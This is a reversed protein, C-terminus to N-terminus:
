RRRARAVALGSAAGLWLAAVLLAVLASPADGASRETSTDPLPSPSAGLCGAIDATQVRTPNDPGFPEFPNPGIAVLSQPGGVPPLDSDDVSTVLHFTVGSVTFTTDTAADFNGCIFLEGAAFAEQARASWCALDISAAAPEAFNVGILLQSVVVTDVFVLGGIVELEGCVEAASLNIVAADLIENDVVTVLLCVDKMADLHFALVAQYPAPLLIADMEFGEVSVIDFEPYPQSAPDRYPIPTGDVSGCAISALLDPGTFGYDLLIAALTGDGALQFELCAEEAALPGDLTAIAGLLAALDPDAAILAAADGDLTATTLTDTSGAQLVFTGADDVLPGCSTDNAINVDVILGMGDGILHLCTWEGAAALPAVLPSVPAAEDITFAHDAGDVVGAVTLSGDTGIIPATFEVIRGCAQFSGGLHDALSQGSAGPSSGPAAAVPSAMAVLATIAILISTLSRLM